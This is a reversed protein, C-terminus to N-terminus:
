DVLIRLHNGVLERRLISVDAKNVDASMHIFVTKAILTTLVISIEGFPVIYVYRLQRKKFYFFLFYCSFHFSLQSKQPIKEKYFMWRTFFDVSCFCSSFFLHLNHALHHSNSGDGLSTQSASGEATLGLVM